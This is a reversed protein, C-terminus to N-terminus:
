KEEKITFIRPPYSYTTGDVYVVQVAGAFYWWCGRISQGDKGSSIVMKGKGTDDCNDQLLKINGGAENSAELWKEAHAATSVLLLAILLKKM